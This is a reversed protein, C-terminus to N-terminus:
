RKRITTGFRPLDFIFAVCIPLSVLFLMGWFPNAVLFGVVAIIVPPKLYLVLGIAFAFVSCILVAGAAADKAIRALNDYSQTELNVLAELATNVAEASLVMGVTLTILIYQTQTFHYFPSFAYVYAATVLHIRMNRENKICFTVGRGAYKFSRALSRVKIVRARADIRM